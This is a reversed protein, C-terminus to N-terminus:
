REHKKPAEGNVIKVGAPPVFVSPEPERLQINSVERRLGGRNQMLLPFFALNPALLNISGDAQQDRYVTFGQFREAEPTLGHIEGTKLRYKPVANASAKIPVQVWYGMAERYLYAHQTQTNIISIMETTTGNTPDLYAGHQALSQDARRYFKGTWRSGNPETQVFDAVFSVQDQGAVEHIPARLTLVNTYAVLLLIGTGIAISIKTPSLFQM